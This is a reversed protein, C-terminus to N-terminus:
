VEGSEVSSRRFEGKPSLSPSLSNEAAADHTGTARATQGISASLDPLADLAAAMDGAYLHTYRDMTLTITSHRALTQATKPNVGGAALNSIFSHRLAHFDAKRGAGDSYALFTGKAAESADQA